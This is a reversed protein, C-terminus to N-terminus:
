CDSVHHALRPSVLSVDIQLPDGDVVDREKHPERTTEVTHTEVAAHAALLPIPHTAALLRRRRAPARARSGLLCGHTLTEGDVVGLRCRGTAVVGEGDDVV